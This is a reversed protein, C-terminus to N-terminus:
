KRVEKLAKQVKRWYRLGDATMYGYTGDKYMRAIAEMTAPKGTLGKYRRALVRLYAAAAKRSKDPDLRDALPWSVGLAACAEKWAPGHL